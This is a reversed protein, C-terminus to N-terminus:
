RELRLDAVDIWVLLPHRRARQDRRRPYVRRRTPVLVGDFMRHHRCYHAAHAWTGIALATYDHRRIRREPDVYVVQRPCHTTIRPPFTVALRQWVEGEEDWPELLEVDVDRQALVFPVHVYTWMAVAAFRAVDTRRWWPRRRPELSLPPFAAAWPRPREGALRVQQGDVAVTATTDLLSRPQLKSGFALGGSAFRVRVARASKWRDIGGHAAIVEDVVAGRKM